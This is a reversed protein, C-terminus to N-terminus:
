QRRYADSPRLSNLKFFDRCKTTNRFCSKYVYIIDFIDIDFMDSLKFAGMGM